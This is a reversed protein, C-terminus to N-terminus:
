PCGAGSFEIQSDRPNQQAQACTDYTGVSSEYVRRVLFWSAQGPDPAAPHELWPDLLNDELCQDTATEFSADDLLVDLSGAIVDYNTAGGSPGWTLMTDQWAISLPYDFYLMWVAGQNAGGDDDYLAGVAIDAVGDGNCDGVESVSYGFQDQADLPGVFGGNLDNIKQHAEVSGGNDLFLIWIAGADQGGQDHTRTGAVLDRVGNGDLDELGDISAGFYDGVNITGAFNGQTVSIKQHSKVRNDSDLFLVWIAGRDAYAGGGGDDDGPAGVAIDGNGDGDVDGLYAISAGFWDFDSLDGTFGSANEKIRIQSKITGDCNLFLLWIAGGSSDLIAGAALDGIGDGDRDGIAKMGYSFQVGNSLGLLGGSTSSLKSHSHVTGDSNLFLVWVAGRNPGGDDDNYAGVALANPTPACSGLDGLWSVAAGFYDGNDLVGSFGGETDSIKQTSKIAGAENLFLIWVAGRDTPPVVEADDDGAAGIALDRVGDGDLDGLLTTSVGFFDYGDLEGILDLSTESIKGHDRVQGPCEAGQVSGLATLFVLVMASLLQKQFEVRERKM